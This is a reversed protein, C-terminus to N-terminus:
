RKLVVRKIGQRLTSVNFNILLGLRLDTAKLYSLLQALHVPAITDTSKLELVLKEHVLVDIRLEGLLLGKYLVSVPVQRKFSVNRLQLETCLAAEYLGELLGPGLRRHVEIAAGIVAYALRDLEAGPERQSRSSSEADGLSM